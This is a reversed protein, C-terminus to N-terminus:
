STPTEPPRSQAHQPEPPQATHPQATQPQAAQPQATQPQAAQPPAAQPPAIQPPATQPMQQQQAVMVIRYYHDAHQLYNEARIRNGALQADRALTQYKKCIHAATGRIKVDPGNSDLSRQALNQGKNRNRNRYRHHNGGHHRDNDQKM